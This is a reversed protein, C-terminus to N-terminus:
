KSEEPPYDLDCLPRWWDGMYDKIGLAGPFNYSKVSTNSGVFHKYQVLVDIFCPPWTNPDDTMKTWKPLAAELEEIHELSTMHRGILWKDPLGRISM